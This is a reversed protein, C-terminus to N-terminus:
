PELYYSFCTKAKHGAGINVLLTKGCGNYMMQLLYENTYSM